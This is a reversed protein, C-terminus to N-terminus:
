TTVQREVRNLARETRAADAPTFPGHGELQDWPCPQGIGGRAWEEWHPGDTLPWWPGWCDASYEDYRVWTDGGKDIWATRNAPERM